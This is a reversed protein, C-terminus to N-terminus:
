HLPSTILVIVPFIELRGSWMEIILVIKQHAPLNPGTIGVSLGVNGEASAVEFLADAASYGGYMFVLAGAVLV